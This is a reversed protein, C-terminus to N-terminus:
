TEGRESILDMHKRGCAHWREDSANERLVSRHEKEKGPWLGIRIDLHINQRFRM